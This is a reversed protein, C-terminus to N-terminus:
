HVSVLVKINSHERHNKREQIEDTTFTVYCEPDAIYAFCAHYLAYTIYCISHVMNYVIYYYIDM